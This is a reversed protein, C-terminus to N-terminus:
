LSNVAGAGEYSSVPVLKSSLQPTLLQMILRVKMSHVCGFFLLDVGVHEGLERLLHVFTRDLPILLGQSLSHSLKGGQPVVKGLLKVILWLQSRAVSCERYPARGVMNLSHISLHADFATTLFLSLNVKTLAAGELRGM